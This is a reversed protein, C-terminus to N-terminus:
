RLGGLEEAHVGKFVRDAYKPLPLSFFALLGTFLFVWDVGVRDALPTAILMSLLGVPILLTPASAFVVGRCLTRKKAM